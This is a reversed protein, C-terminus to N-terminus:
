LLLKEKARTDETHDQHDNHIHINLNQQSDCDEVYNWAQTDATALLLYVGNGLLAVGAVLSFLAPWLQAQLGPGLLWAVLGPTHPVLSSTLYCFLGTVGMITGVFNPGIDLPSSWAGVLNFGTLSYALTTLVTVAATDGGLWPVPLTLVAFGVLCVSSCLKRAATRSLGCRLLLGYVPASVLGLAASGIYPLASVLGTHHLPLQLASHLFQPLLLATHAAAWSVAMNAAIVALLAPSAAMARVPISRVRPRPGCGAGHRHTDQRLM